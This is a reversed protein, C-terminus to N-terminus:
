RQSRRARRGSQRRQRSARPDRPRDLSRPRGRAHTRGDSVCLVFRSVWITSRRNRRFTTSDATADRGTAHDPSVRHRLVGGSPTPSAAALDGRDDRDRGALSRARLAHDPATGCAAGAHGAGTRFTAHRARRPTGRGHGVRLDAPGGALGVLGGRGRRPRRRRLPARDATHRGSRQHHVDCRKGRHSRDQRRTPAPARPRGLCRALRLCRSGSARRDATSCWCALCRRGMSMLGWTSPHGMGALRRHAIASLTKAIGGSVILSPRHRTAECLCRRVWSTPYPSRPQECPTEHEPRLRRTPPRWPPLRSRRETEM